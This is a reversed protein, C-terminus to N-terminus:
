VIQFAMESSRTVLIGVTFPEHLRITGEASFGSEDYDNDDNFHQTVDKRTIKATRLLQTESQNKILIFIESGSSDRGKIHAWGKM